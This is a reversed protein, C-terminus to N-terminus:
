SHRDLCGHPDQSPLSLWVREFDVVGSAYIQEFARYDPQFRPDQVAMEALVPLADKGALRASFRFLAWRVCVDREGAFTGAFLALTGKKDDSLSLGHVAAQRVEDSGETSLVRAYRQTTAPDLRPAAHMPMSLALYRVDEDLSAAGITLLQELYPAADGGRQLDRNLVRGLTRTAAWGADGSGPDRAHESLRAIVEPALRKQTDLAVLFGARREADLRGDLGLETLKAAVQPLHVADSARLASLFLGADQAGAEAAWGIVKEANGADGGILETLREKLYAHVRPDGSALLPAAWARFTELTVGENFRELEAWCTTREPQPPREAGEGDTRQPGGRGSSRRASPPQHPAPAEARLTAKRETRGCSRAGVVAGLLLTATGLWLALRSRTGLARRSRGRRSRAASELTPPTPTRM